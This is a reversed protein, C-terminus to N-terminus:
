ELLRHAVVELTTFRFGCALCVVRRRIRGGSVRTDIRAGVTGGCEPCPPCNTGHEIRKKVQKPLGRVAKRSHSRLALVADSSSPAIAAPTEM